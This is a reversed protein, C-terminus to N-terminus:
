SLLSPQLEEEYLTFVRDKRNEDLASDFEDLVVYGPSVDISKLLALAFLLSSLSEEGGSVGKGVKGGRAKASVEQLEGRHGAKRAKIYLYYRAGGRSSEEITHSVDGEFGFREMYKIFRKNLRHVDHRITDELRRRFTEMKECMEHFIATAETVDKQSRDYEVKIKQYNEPATEKVNEQIALRFMTTRGNERLERAQALTLSSRGEM